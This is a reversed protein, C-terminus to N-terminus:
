TDGSDHDRPHFRVVRRDAVPELPTSRKTTPTSESADGFVADRLLVLWPGQTVTSRRGLPRRSPRRGGKAAISNFTVLRHTLPATSTTPSTRVRSSVADGQGCGRGRAEDDGVMWALFNWAANAM